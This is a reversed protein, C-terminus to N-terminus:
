AQFTAQGTILRHLFLRAAGSAASYRGTTSAYTIVLYNSLLSPLKERIAKELDLRLGPPINSLMGGIILNVPQLIYILNTLALSLDEFMRSVIDACLPHGESAAQLIATFKANREDLTVIHGLTEDPEPWQTMRKEFTDCLGGVSATAELDQYAEYSDEVADVRAIKTRGILGANGFPGSYLQGNLLLSAKVGELVGLYITDGAFRGKSSAIEAQILCDTDNEMMIPLGGLAAELHLRMPYNEWGPARGVYLITGTDADVYGPATMGIGLLNRDPYNSRVNRAYDVLVRTAGEPLLRGSAEYYTEDLVTGDLATLVFNVTPIEVHAGIILHHSGDLGFLRAPRGGTSSDTGVRCVWAMNSLENIARRLTPLSTNTQSELDALSLAEHSLLEIIRAKLGEITNGTPRDSLV